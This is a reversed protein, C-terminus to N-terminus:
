ERKWRINNYVKEGIIIGLSFSLSVDMAVVFEFMGYPDHQIWLLYLMLISCWVLLFVFTGILFSVFMRM